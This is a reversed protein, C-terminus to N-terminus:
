SYVHETWDLDRWVRQQLQVHSSKEGVFWLRVIIGNLEAFVGVKYKEYGLSGGNIKM